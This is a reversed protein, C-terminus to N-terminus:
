MNEKLEKKGYEKSLKERIESLRKGLQKAFKKSLVTNGQKDM